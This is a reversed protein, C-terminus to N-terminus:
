KCGGSLYATPNLCSKGYAKECDCVCGSHADKFLGNDEIFKEVQDPSAEVEFFRTDGVQIWNDLDLKFDYEETM